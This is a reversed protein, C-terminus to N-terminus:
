TSIGSGQQPNSSDKTTLHYQSAYKYLPAESEIVPRENLFAWKSSIWWGNQLVLKDFEHEAEMDLSNEKTHPLPMSTSRQYKLSEAEKPRATTDVQKNDHHEENQKKSRWYTEIREKTLSRNRQYKVDKPDKLPSNWGAMLSGM